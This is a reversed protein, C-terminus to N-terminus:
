RSFELVNEFSAAEIINGIGRDVFMHEVASLESQDHFSSTKSSSTRSWYLIITAPQFAVFFPASPSLTHFLHQRSFSVNTFTFFVILYVPLFSPLNSVHQFPSVMLVFLLPICLNAFNNLFETEMFKRKLRPLLPWFCSSNQMELKRLSVKYTRELYGLHCYKPPICGIM